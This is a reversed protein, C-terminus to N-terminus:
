YSVRFPSVKGNMEANKTTVHDGVHDLCLLIASTVSRIKTPKLLVLGRLQIYTHNGHAGDSLELSWCATSKYARFMGLIHM